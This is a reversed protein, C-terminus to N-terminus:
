LEIQQVTLDLFTNENRVGILSKPGKCGMSTGLGGNLKVVVLKNLVSAISDPIGRAKIKEYPQISDEPPRQIKGWDVSPGKEQLFRHFLKQFGELDKKTHQLENQPATGLIKDLEMKMSYELEQRIAEQFPSTGAQSMAKSFDKAFSSM